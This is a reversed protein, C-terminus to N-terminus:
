DINFIESEFLKYAQEYQISAERYLSSIKDKANTIINLIEKQVELPPAPIAIEKLRQQSLSPMITGTHKEEYQKQVFDFSNIEALYDGLIISEDITIIFIESSATLKYDGKLYIAQGVTGKRTILLTSQKLLDSEDYKNIYKVNKDDIANYKVDSVRIFRVGEKAYNRASIGNRLSTFIEGYEILDYKSDLHRTEGFLYETDWRKLKKFNIINFGKKRIDTTKRIGLISKVKAKYQDSFQKADKDFKHALQISRNYNDVLQKQGKLLPVPIRFKLFTNEDVRQRGTTGSSARQCLEAFQKTRTILNFFEPLIKKTNINYSLFDQTTIAGDLEAPVIGFAGNRADIKSMIFQGESVRFQNKTRINKGLILDDGRQVVGKGHLKITIQKYAKDDQLIEKERNRIILDGIAELKLGEKYLVNNNLIAGASWGSLMKFRIENLYKFSSDTQM